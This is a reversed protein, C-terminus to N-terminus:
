PWRDKGKGSGLDNPQVGQSEFDFDGEFVRQVGDAGPGIVKPQPLHGRDLPTVTILVEMTLRFFVTEGDLSLEVGIVAVDLDPEDGLAEQLAEGGGAGLSTHLWKEEHSRM